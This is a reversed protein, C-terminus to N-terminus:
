NTVLSFKGKMSKKISDFNLDLPTSTPHDDIDISAYKFGLCQWFFRSYPSQESLIETGNENYLTSPSLLPYPWCIGFEKAIMEILEHSNLFSAALQQTGIEIVSAHHPIYGQKKLSLLFELDLSSM